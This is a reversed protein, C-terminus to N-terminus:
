IFPKALFDALAQFPRSEFAFVEVLHLAIMAGGVCVYVPHVQRHRAYDSVAAILVLSDAIVVSYLFLPNGVEPFYHRLRFWAPGLSAILALLMLRKHAEPRKRVLLASFILAAFVVMEIIIVLLEGSAAPSGAAASRRSALVAVYLTTLVVGAAIAAGISGMTKHLRLRKRHILVSQSMFFGLWGFLFLGHVYIMPHARFTGTLLPHFFTKAFGITAVAVGLLALGLFLRSRQNAGDRM